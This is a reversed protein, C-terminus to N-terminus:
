NTIDQSQVTQMTMVHQPHATQMTMVPTMPATQMMMVTPVTPVTPITPVTSVPVGNSPQLVPLMQVSTTPLRMTPMGGRIEEPAKPSADAKSPSTSDDNEPEKGEGAEDDDDSGSSGGRHHGGGRRHMSYQGGGQSYHGGGQQGGGASVHHSRQSERKPSIMAVKQTMSKYDDNISKITIGALGFILVMLVMGLLVDPIKDVVGVRILLLVAMFIFLLWQSLISVIDDSDIRYPELERLVCVCSLSIFAGFTAQVEPDPM